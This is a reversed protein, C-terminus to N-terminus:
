ELEEANNQKQAQQKTKLESYYEKLQFKPQNENMQFLVDPVIFLFGLGITSIAGRIAEFKLWKRFAKMDDTKQYLGFFQKRGILALSGTIISRAIGSIIGVLPIWDLKNLINHTVALPKIRKYSSHSKSYHGFTLEIPTYGQSVVQNM